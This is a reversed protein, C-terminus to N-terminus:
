IAASLSLPLFYSMSITLVLDLMEPPVPKIWHDIFLALM